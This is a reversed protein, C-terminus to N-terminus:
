IEFVRMKKGNLTNKLELGALGAAENLAGRWRVAGEKGVHKKFAEEVAGSQHRVHTPEVDYFVPYATHETLRQCEIIKALEDLCWSSYAYDKSFVIIYFRSDQISAILEKSIVEGKKIKEDDKYTNIGRCHIAHYLHGVFTKRTDEGRFSLFVDYQFSKQVSSASTSEM